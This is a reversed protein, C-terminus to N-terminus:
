AVRRRFVRTAIGICGSSLLLLLATGSADPASSTGSLEASYTRYDGSYLNYDGGGGVTFTEGLALSDSELFSSPTFAWENDTGAGGAGNGGVYPDNWDTVGLTIATQVGSGNVASNIFGFTYDSGTTATGYDLVFPASQVSPSVISSITDGVGRVVFTGPATEQFLIPTLVGPVSYNGANDNYWSLTNVTVGSAFDGGAYIYVQGPSSDRYDRQITSSGAVDQASASTVGALLTLGLLSYITISKM